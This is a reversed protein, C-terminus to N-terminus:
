ASLVEMPFCKVKMQFANLEKQFEVEIESHDEGKCSLSMFLSNRGISEGKPPCIAFTNSWVQNRSAKTNNPDFDDSWEKYWLYLVYQDDDDEM